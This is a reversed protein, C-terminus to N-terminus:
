CWMYFAYNLSFLIKKAPNLVLWIRFELLFPFQTYYHVLLVYTTHVPIAIEEQGFFFDQFDKLLM